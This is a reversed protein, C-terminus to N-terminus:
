KTNKKIKMGFLRAILSKIKFIFSKTSYILTAILAILTSLLMSGTGPDLYAQVPTASILLVIFYFNIMPKNNKKFLKKKERIIM